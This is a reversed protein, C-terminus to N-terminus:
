PLSYTFTALAAISASDLEELGGIDAGELASAATEAAVKARAARFFAPYITAATPAIQSPPLTSPLLLSAVVASGRGM